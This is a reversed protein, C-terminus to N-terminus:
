LYRLWHNDSRAKLGAMWRSPFYLIVVAVLWVLYLLSLPWTYGAPAPPNGM